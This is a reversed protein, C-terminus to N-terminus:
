RLYMGGREESVLSQIEQKSVLTHQQETLGMMRLVRAIRAKRAAKPTDHPLIISAYFSVAEYATM